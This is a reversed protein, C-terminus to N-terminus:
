QRCGTFICDGVFLHYYVVWYSCTVVENLGDDDDDDDDSISERRRKKKNPAQKNNVVSNAFDIDFTDNRGGPIFQDAINLM